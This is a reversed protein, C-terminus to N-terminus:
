FLGGNGPPPTAHNLDALHYLHYLNAPERPSQQSPQVVQVVHVAENVGGGGQLAIM